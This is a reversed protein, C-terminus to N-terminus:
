VFLLLIFKLGRGLQRTLKIDKVLFSLGQNSNMIYKICGACELQIVTEVFGSQRSGLRELSQLLVEMGGLELFEDLWQTTAQKLRVKLWSYNQISPKQVLKLCLEPQPNGSSPPNIQNQGIKRRVTLWKKNGSEM